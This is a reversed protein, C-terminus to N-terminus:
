FIVIWAGSPGANQATFNICLIPIFIGYIDISLGIIPTQVLGMLSPNNLLFAFATLSVCFQGMLFAFCVTRIISNCRAKRRNRRGILVFYHAANIVVTLLAGLVVLAAFVLCALRVTESALIDDDSQESCGMTAFIIVAVVHFLLPLLFVPTLIPLMRTRLM